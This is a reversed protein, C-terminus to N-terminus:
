TTFMTESRRYGGLATTVKKHNYNSEAKALLFAGTAPCSAVLSQKKKAQQHIWDIV